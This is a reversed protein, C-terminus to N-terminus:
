FVDASFAHIVTHEDRWADPSMGAKVCANELSKLPPRAVEGATPPLVLGTDDGRVVLLGYRAAAIEEPVRVTRFQSLITIEVKLFPLEEPSTPRFRTDNLAAIEAMRAITEDLPRVAEVVGARGRIMGKKYLTVFVGIKEAPAERPNSRAPPPDGCVAARIAAIAVGLLEDKEPASLSLRRNSANARETV